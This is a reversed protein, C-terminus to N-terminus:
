LLDAEPRCCWDLLTREIDARGRTATTRRRWHHALAPGPRFDLISIILRCDPLGAKRLAEFLHDFDRHDSVRDRRAPLNWDSLRRGPAVTTRPRSVPVSTSKFRFQFSPNCVLGSM